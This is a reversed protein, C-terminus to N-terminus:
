KREYSIEKLRDKVSDCIIRTEKLSVIGKIQKGNHNLTVYLVPLQGDKLEPYRQVNIDYLWKVDDKLEEIEAQLQRLMTATEKANEILPFKSWYDALELANM